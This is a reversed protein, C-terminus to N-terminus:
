GYFLSYLNAEEGDKMVDDMYDDEEKLFRVCCTSSHNFMVSLAGDMKVHTVYIQDQKFTDSYDRREGEEEDVCSCSCVYYDARTNGLCYDPIHKQYLGSYQKTINNKLRCGYILQQGEDDDTIKECYIGDM